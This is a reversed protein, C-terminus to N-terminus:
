VTAELRRDAVTDVQIEVQDAIPPAPTLAAEQRAILLEASFACAAAAFERGHETLRATWGEAATKFTVVEEKELLVLISWKFEVPDTGALPKIPIWRHETWLLPGNALQVLAERALEHMDRVVSIPRHPSM